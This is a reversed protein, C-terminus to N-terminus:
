SVGDGGPPAAQVCGHAFGRIGEGTTLPLAQRDCTGEDALWPHQQQVSIVEPSSTSFRLCTISRMRVVMPPM